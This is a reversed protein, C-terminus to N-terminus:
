ITDGLAEEKCIDDQIETKPLKEMLIKDRKKFDELQYNDQAYKNNQENWTAWDFRIKQMVKKTDENFVCVFTMDDTIVLKMDESNFYSYYDQLLHAVKESSDLKRYIAAELIPLFVRNDEEMSHVITDLVGDTAMVFGCINSAHLFEWKDKVKLPYLSSPDKGKHRTTILGFYGENSVAFVGDDGIHGIYLNCGDFISITLTCNYDDILRGANNAEKSILEFACDMSGKLLTKVYEDDIEKEYIDLNNIIYDVSEKVSISAGEKACECSGVGDSIAVILCKRKDSYTAICNDQCDDGYLWHAHGQESFGFFSINDFVGSGERSKYPYGLYYKHNIPLDKIIEKRKRIQKKRRRKNILAEKKM